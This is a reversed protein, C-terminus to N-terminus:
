VNQGAPEADFDDFHDQCDTGRWGRVELLYYALLAYVELQNVFRGNEAVFGVRDADGDTLCGASARAAPM